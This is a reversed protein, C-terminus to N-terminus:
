ELDLAPVQVREGSARAGVVAIEQVIVLPQAGDGLVVPVLVPVAKSVHTGSSGPGAPGPARSGRLSPPGSAPHPPPQHLGRMADQQSPNRPQM